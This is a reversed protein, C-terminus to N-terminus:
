AGEEPKVIEVQGEWHEPPKPPGYVAAWGNTPQSAPGPVGNGVPAEGTGVIALPQPGLRSAMAEEVWSTQQGGEVLAIIRKLKRVLTEQDDESSLTVVSEVDGDSWEFRVAKTKLVLTM